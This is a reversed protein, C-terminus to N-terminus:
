HDKLNSFSWIYLENSLQCKIKVTRWLFVYKFFIQKLLSQYKLHTDCLGYRVRTYIIQLSKNIRQFYLNFSGKFKINVRTGHWDQGVESGIRTEPLCVLRVRRTLREFSLSTAMNAQDEDGRQSSHMASSLSYRCYFPCTQNNYKIRWKVASGTPLLVSLLPVVSQRTRGVWGGLRLMM